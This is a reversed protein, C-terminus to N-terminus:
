LRRHQRRWEGPTMGFERRFANAFYQSSAFGCRRAVETISQKGQLMRKADELRVRHIEAKPSRGLHKRFLKELQSRSVPIHRLLDQVNIGECAHDRIFRVAAVVDPHSTAVVDSSQRTVVETPEVWIPEGPKFSEHLMKQLLEASLYGIREANQEVSSLPPWTMGCLVPDNDVGVVAVQEPVAINAIRAAELLRTGCLDNACLVGTSPALSELWQVFEARQEFWELPNKRRPIYADALEMGRRRLADTLASHRFACWERNVLQCWAIQTIGRALFHEIALEVLTEEDSYVLPVDLGMGSMDTEVVPVGLKQLQKVMAPSSSHAIIGDGDFSNVWQPMKETKGREEVYVAWNCQREAMFRGVGQLLKRGFAKSTEILLLINDPNSDNM